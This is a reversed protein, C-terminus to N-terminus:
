RKMHALNYAWVMRGWFRVVSMILWALIPGTIFVSGLGGVVTSIISALTIGIVVLVRSKAYLGLNALILKISAFPNFLSVFSDGDALRRAMMPVVLLAYPLLALVVLDILPIILWGVVRLFRIDQAMERNSTFFAVIGSFTLIGGLIATIFTPIYIAYIALRLSLGQKFYSTADDWTPLPNSHGARINKITQIQYGDTIAEVFPISTILSGILVKQIWDPDKTIYTICSTQQFQNTQPIQQVLPIPSPSNHAVSPSYNAPQNLNTSPTSPSYSFFSNLPVFAQSGYPAIEVITNPKQWNTSRNRVDSESLSTGPLIQGNIRIQYQTTQQTSLIPSPPNYTASPSYNIPQNSNTSPTSSSYSLFSSLPVFAQSGYPAVEVIVNPKQWNKSRNRIDTESLPTGPLIQGNIRVQYSMQNEKRFVPKKNHAIARM